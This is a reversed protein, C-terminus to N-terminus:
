KKEDVESAMVTDRDMLSEFLSRPVLQFVKNLPIDLVTWILCPILNNEPDFLILTSLENTCEISLSKCLNQLDELTIKEPYRLLYDGLIVQCTGVVKQKADVYSITENM